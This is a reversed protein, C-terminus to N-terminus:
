WISKRKPKGQLRLLEGNLREEESDIAKKLEEAIKDTNWFDKKELVTVEAKRARLEKLEDIIEFIRKATSVNDPQATRAAEIAKEGTIGHAFRLHGPLGTPKFSKGCEPCKKGAIAM